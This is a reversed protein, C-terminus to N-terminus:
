LPTPADHARRSHTGRHPAEQDRGDGDQDHRHYRLATTNMARTTITMATIAPACMRRATRITALVMMITMTLPRHPRHRAIKVARLEMRYTWDAAALIRNMREVIIRGKTRLQNYERRQEPTGKLKDSM